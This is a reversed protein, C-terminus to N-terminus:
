MQCQPGRLRYDCAVGLAGGVLVVPPAAPRRRRRLPSKVSRRGRRGLRGIAGRGSRPRGRRPRWRRDGAFDGRRLETEGLRDAILDVRGGSVALAHAVKRLCGELSVVDEGIVGSALQGGDGAVEIGAERGAEGDRHHGPRQQQVVPLPRDCARVCLRGSLAISQTGPESAACGRRPGHLSHGFMLRGRGGLRSALPTRCRGVGDGRAHRILRAPPEDGVLATRVRQQGQLARGAVGRDRGHEAAVAQRQLADRHRDREAFSQLLVRRWRGSTPRRPRRVLDQVGALGVAVLDGAAAVREGDVDADLQDRVRVPLRPHGVRHRLGVAGRGARHAGAERAGPVCPLDGDDPFPSRRSYRPRAPSRWRWGGPRRGLDLQVRAEDRRRDEVHVGRGVREVRRHREVVPGGIGPRLGVGGAVGDHIRGGAGLLAAMRDVRAVPVRPRAPVVPQGGGIDDVGM